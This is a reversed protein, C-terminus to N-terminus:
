KPSRTLSEPSLIRNLEKENLLGKALVVQRLTRKTRVAEKVCEAAKSYGIHPNLAAAIGFSSEAYHRCRERDARIGEVCRDKLVKLTNTLIEFSQLLNHIIVPRMVNLECEGSAAAFAIATDNGIVQYGVQAAVEPIVPNVKGPMISSGPQLAPLLIEGFGTNPGSSLLRLDNAIQIMSLSYDRLTGSVAAFDADNQMVAFLDRASKVSFGTIEKINGVVTKRYRLSTNLGTGVASGGIGLELLGRGLLELRERGKQLQVAWGAFEQGLTVPAADQLHTRGSKVIRSFEKAKKLLAKELKQSAACFEKSLKLAALRLATPVVDNTSQGMNVHDHSHLYAHDGKKRGLIELARNTIVENANMHASVGAGSQLADTVFEGAHIGEMVEECARIIAKARRGELRGLSRNALACAKKIVALAWVFSAHFRMGSIPFNEVARLTEIGYYASAPISRTGLSDKEIRMKGKKM